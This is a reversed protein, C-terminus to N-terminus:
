EYRLSDVPNTRAARIAQFSVTLLAIFLSLAASFLFVDIGLRTRYAFIQLWQKTVFYSIPWAILNAILICRTFEKSLLLFVRSVSSGLVKRIGIEKSRKEATYSALGFLGLCAVFGAILTFINSLRGMRDISRYSRDFREDVFEYQFPYMPIVDEWIGRMFDLTSSLEKPDIRLVMNSTYRTDILFFMPSIRNTLPQFHCDEVVGVITRPEDWIIMRAGIPSQIGTVDVLTQNVLISNEADATYEKSFSRGAVLQIGLTEIFDYDVPNFNFLIKKDPDKGEWQASGTGWGFYPLDDGVRTMGLIRENQLLRNKLADYFSHIDGEMSITILGEKVYGIDTTKLYTLQKHIIGTGILLFISIVFQAVVLVKRLKSGKFGANFMINLVHIPRFSSLYLAPYSGALLGTISILGFLIPLRGPNLLSEASLSKGTLANFAPLFLVTLIIALGFGSLTMLFSEGLFQMILHRRQGGVVKRVGIEGARNVSRATSLNMFNICAVILIFAAIISYIM